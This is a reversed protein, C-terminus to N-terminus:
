SDLAIAPEKFADLLMIWQSILMPYLLVLMLIELHVIMLLFSIILYFGSLVTARIMAHIAKGYHAQILTKIKSFQFVAKMTNQQVAYIIPAMVVPVALIMFGQFVVLAALASQSAQTQFVQALFVNNFLLVSLVYYFVSLYVFFVAGYTLVDRSNALWSPADPLRWSADGIQTGHQTAALDSLSPWIRQAIAWSYGLLLVNQIVTMVVVFPMALAMTKALVVTVIFMLLSPVLLLNLWNSPRYPYGVAAFLSVPEYGNVSTEESTTISASQPPPTSLTM